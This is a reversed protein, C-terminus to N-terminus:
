ILEARRFGFEFTFCQTISWHRRRIMNYKKYSVTTYLSEICSVSSYKTDYVYTCLLSTNALIRTDAERWHYNMKKTHRTLDTQLTKYIVMSVLNLYGDHDADYQENFETIYLSNFSGPM